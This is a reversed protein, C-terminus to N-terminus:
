PWLHSERDSTQRENYETAQFAAKNSHTPNACQKRNDSDKSLLTEYPLLASKLKCIQHNM